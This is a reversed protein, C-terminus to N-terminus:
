IRSGVRVSAHANPAAILAVHGGPGYGVRGPALFFLQSHLRANGTKRHELALLRRVPRFTRTWPKSRRRRAALRNYKDAMELRAAREVPDRLRQALQRAQQARSRWHAPDTLLQPM